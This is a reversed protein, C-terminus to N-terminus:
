SSPHVQTFVTNSHPYEGTPGSGHATERKRGFTSNTQSHAVRARSLPERFECFSGFNRQPGADYPTRRVNKRLMEARRLPAVEKAIGM